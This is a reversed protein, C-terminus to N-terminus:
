PCSKFDRLVSSADRTLSIIRLERQILMIGKCRCKNNHRFTNMANIHISQNLLYEKAALNSVRRTLM